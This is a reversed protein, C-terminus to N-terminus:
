EPHIEQIRLRTYRQRHGRKTQSPGKYRLAIVKRGKEHRVVQALVRAGDVTPQGIRPERGQEGGILLVRAFEVSEGVPAALRDVLVEDGAEVRYQKGKNDVVAYVPYRQRGVHRFPQHGYWLTERLVGRVITASNARGKLRRRSM